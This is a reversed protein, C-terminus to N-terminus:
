TSASQVPGAPRPQRRGAPGVPETQNRSVADFAAPPANQGQVPAAGALSAVLALIRCRRPRM